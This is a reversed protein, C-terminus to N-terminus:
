CNSTREKYCLENFSMGSIYKLSESTLYGEKYALKNWDKDTLIMPLKKIKQLSKEYFEQM